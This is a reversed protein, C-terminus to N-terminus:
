QILPLRRAVRHHCRAFLVLIIDRCYSVTCLELYGTYLFQAANDPIMSSYLVDSVGEASKVINYPVPTLVRMDSLIVPPDPFLFGVGTGKIPVNLGYVPDPGLLLSMGGERRDGVVFESGSAVSSSWCLLGNLPLVDCV